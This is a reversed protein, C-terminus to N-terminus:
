NGAYLSRLKARDTKGNANYPMSRVRIVEDPRMYASVKESLLGRVAETDNLSGEYILLIRQSKDDYIVASSKIGAIANAATEIEGPEIRFGMRKIQFDKRCIYIYERRDNMRALDGTRYVREPYSRNLPNQPFAAATKEPENYYGSALFSGRVILEGEEGESALRGDETLLFVDCNDCERGIPLTEDDRFDRDIMYFTCIDTTETPGFLNAYLCDPLHKRWYNLNRVPMVEGAFLVKELHEPKSYGFLDWNPAIALASPVWYITNIKRENMYSILDVPFSFMKKPIISYTCGCRITSFLDTVSMSFYLPAQSGFITTEDFGFEASVWETYSIVSRHSVVTGKPKGSSGSTFLVYLPDTDIMSARVSSLFDTDEPCSVADEYTIVAIDQMSCKELIEGTLALCSSDTMVATPRLTSFIDSIRSVPSHVDIVTYFCGAYVAAFMAEICRVSRDIVIAVPSNAPIDKMSSAAKRSRDMVQVFAADRDPDTFGTKEPFGAASAELYELINKM